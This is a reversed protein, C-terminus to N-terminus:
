DGPYAIHSCSKYKRPFLLARKWIHETKRVTSCFSVQLLVNSLAPCVQPNFSPLSSPPMETLTCHAPCPLILSEATVIFHPTTHFVVTLLQFDLCTLKPCHYIGGSVDHSVLVPAPFIVWHSLVRARCAHHGSNLDRATHLLATYM